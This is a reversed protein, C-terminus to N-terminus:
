RQWLAEGRVAQEDFTGRLCLYMAKQERSLALIEIERKILRMLWNM